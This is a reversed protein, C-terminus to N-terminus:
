NPPAAATSIQFSLAVQTRVRVPKGDVLFPKYRFTQAAAVAAARLMAPGSVVRLDEVTGTKSILTDLTVTGQIRAAKAIAPYQPPDGAIKMAITVDPPLTVTEDTAAPAPQVPAAPTATPAAPAVAPQLHAATPSSTTPATKPTAAVAPAPAAPIPPADPPNPTTDTTSATTPQPRSPEHLSHAIGLILVLGILVPVLIALVNAYRRLGTPKADDLRTEFVRSGRSEPEPKRSSAPPM